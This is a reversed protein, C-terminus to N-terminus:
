GSPGCSARTASSAHACKFTEPDDLEGFARGAFIATLQERIKTRLDDLDFARRAARRSIQRRSHAAPGVAFVADQESIEVGVLLGDDEIQGAILFELNQMVDDGTCIRHDVIMFEGPSGRDTKAPLIGFAPMAFFSLSALAAAWCRRLEGINERLKTLSATAVTHLPVTLMSLANEYLM